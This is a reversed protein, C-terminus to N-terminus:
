SAKAIKAVHITSNSQDVTGGTVKEGAFQEAKKQDDLEYATRTSADYLVLKAGGKVCALTCAMVPSTISLEHALIPECSAISFCCLM